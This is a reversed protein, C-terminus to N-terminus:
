RSQSEALFRARFCSNGDRPYLAGNAELSANPCLRREVAGGDLSYDILRASLAALDDQEIEITWASVHMLALLDNVDNGL